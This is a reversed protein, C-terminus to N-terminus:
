SMAPFAIGAAAWQASVRRNLERGVIAQKSPLTKIRSRLLIGREALRDVGMVEMPALILARTSKPVVKGPTAALHQLIPLGFAATKGTGTQAIGLVDKGALLHPIAQAQIPTPNVYNEAQLAFLLPEAIGLERFSVNTM